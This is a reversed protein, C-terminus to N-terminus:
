PDIWIMYHPIQPPFLPLPVPKGKLVTIERLLEWEVVFM